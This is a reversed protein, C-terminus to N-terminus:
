GIISPSLLRILNVNIRLVRGTFLILVRLGMVPLNRQLHPVLSLTLLLSKRILRSFLKLCYGLTLSAILCMLIFSMASRALIRSELLIIEKSYFGSVFLVGSLSIVRLFLGLALNLREEGSSLKRADQQSFQSHLYNGVVLFLNAKAVAHTLVHYLCITATGLSLSTVILGLQRLTSLAVIKKADLELFASLRALTLTLL